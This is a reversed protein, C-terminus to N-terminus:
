RPDNGVGLDSRRELRQGSGLGATGLGDIERSAQRGKPLLGKVLPVVVLSALAVAMAVIVFVGLDGQGSNVWAIATIVGSVSLISVLWVIARSPNFRANDWVRTLIATLFACFVLAVFFTGIVTVPEAPHERFIGYTLWGVFVAQVGMWILRSM